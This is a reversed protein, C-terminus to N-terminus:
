TTLLLHNSNNYTTYIKTNTRLNKDVASAGERDSRRELDDGYIAGEHGQGESIAKTLRNSRELVTM